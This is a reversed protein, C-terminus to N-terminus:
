VRLRVAKPDTVIEENELDLHIKYAQMDKAGFILDETLEDVVLTDVVVTLDDITVNLFAAERAEM